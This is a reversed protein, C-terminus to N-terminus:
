RKETISQRAEIWGGRKAKEGEEPLPQLLAHRIPYCCCVRFRVQTALHRGIQKINFHEELNNKIANIRQFIEPSVFKRLSKWATNWMRRPGLSCSAPVGKSVATKVKSDSGPGPSPRCETTQVSLGVEGLTEVSRPQQLTKIWNYLAIATSAVHGRICPM